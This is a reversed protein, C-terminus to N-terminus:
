KKAVKLKKVIARDSIIGSTGTPDDITITFPDKGWLVRTLKKIHNKAKEVEDSDDSSDRIGELVKKARNLLGEINTVYGNSMETSEMTMIRPLKVTASAAKVVRVSLDAESEITFSVTQPEKTQAPEIDAKHYGCEKDACNMSFMFVLGFYPIEREQEMLTLTKKHCIPCTEGHILSLGPMDEM